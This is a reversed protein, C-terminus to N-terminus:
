QQVGVFWRVLGASGPVNAFCTWYDSSCAGTDLFQDSPFWASVYKRVVERRLAYASVVLRLDWLFEPSGLNGWGTDIATVGDILGSASSAYQIPLVVIAWEGSSRISSLDSSLSTWQYPEVLQSFIYSEWFEVPHMSDPLEGKQRPRDRHLHAMLDRWGTWDRSTGVFVSRMQLCPLSDDFDCWWDVIKTELDSRISEASEIAFIVDWSDVPPQFGREARKRLDPRLLMTELDVKRAEIENWTGSCRDGIKAWSMGSDPGFNGVCLARGDVLDALNEARSKNLCECKKVLLATPFDTLSVRTELDFMSWLLANTLLSRADVFNSETLDVPLQHTSLVRFGIRGVSISVVDQGEKLEGNCSIDSETDGVLFVLEPDSGPGFGARMRSVGDCFRRILESESEIISTVNFQNFLASVGDTSDHVGPIVGSVVSGINLDLSPWAADVSTSDILSGLDQLSQGFDTMNESTGDPDVIVFPDDVELGKNFSESGSRLPVLTLLLVAVFIRRM